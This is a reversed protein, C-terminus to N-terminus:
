SRTAKELCSTDNICSKKAKAELFGLVQTRLQSHEAAEKLCFHELLSRKIGVGVGLPRENQTLLRHQMQMEIKIALWRMAKNFYVLAAEGAGDSNVKQVLWPTVPVYVSFHPAAFM